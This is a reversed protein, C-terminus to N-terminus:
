EVRFSITAVGRLPTTVPPIDTYGGLILGQSNNQAIAASTTLSSTYLVTTDQLLFNYGGMWLSSRAVGRVGSDNDGRLRPRDLQREIPRTPAELDSWAPLLRSLCVQSLVAQHELADGFRVRCTRDPLANRVRRPASKQASLSVTISFRPRRGDSPNRPTTRGGSSKASIASYSASRLKPIWVGGPATYRRGTRGQGQRDLAYALAAGSRQVAAAKNSRRIDVVALQSTGDQGM